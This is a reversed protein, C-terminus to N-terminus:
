KKSSMNRIVFSKDLIVTWVGLPENLKLGTSKDRPYKNSIVKYDAEKIDQKVVGHCPLCSKTMLIPANVVLKTNDNFIDNQFSLGNEQAHKYGDLILTQISDPANKPNRLKEPIGARSIKAEYKKELEAIQVNNSLVCISLAETINGKSLASDLKHTIDGQIKNILFVGMEEGNSLIEGPSIKKIKFKEMEEKVKATDVREQGCSAMIFAFLVIPVYSKM